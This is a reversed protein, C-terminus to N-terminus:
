QGAEPPSSLTLAGASVSAGSNEAQGFSSAPRKLDKKSGSFLGLTTGALIAECM